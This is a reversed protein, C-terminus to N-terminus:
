VDDRGKEQLQRKHPCLVATGALVAFLYIFVEAAIVAAGRHSPPPAVTDEPLLPGEGIDVSCTSLATRRSSSGFLFIHACLGRMARGDNGVSISVEVMLEGDKMRLWDAIRRECYM